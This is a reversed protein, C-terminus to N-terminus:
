ILLFIGCFNMKNLKVKNLIVFLIFLKECKIGKYRVISVSSMKELELLNRKSHIKLVVYM